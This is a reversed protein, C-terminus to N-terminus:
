RSQQIKEAAKKFAELGKLDHERLLSYVLHESDDIIVDAAKSSYMIDIQQQIRSWQYRKLGKVAKAVMEFREEMTLEEQSSEDGSVMVISIPGPYDHIEKSSEIKCRDGEPVFITKIKKM